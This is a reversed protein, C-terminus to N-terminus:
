QDMIYFDYIKKGKKDKYFSRIIGSKSIYFKTSIEGFFSVKDKKTYKKEKFVEM